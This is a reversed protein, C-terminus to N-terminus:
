MAMGAPEDRRAISVQASMRAHLDGAEIYAMEMLYCLVDANGRAVEVFEALMQKIFAINERVGIQRCRNKAVEGGHYETRDFRAAHLVAFM